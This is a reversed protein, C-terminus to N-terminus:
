LGWTVYDNSKKPQDIDSSNQSTLAWAGCFDHREERNQQGKPCGKRPCRGIVAHISRMKQAFWSNFHCGHSGFTTWNIWWLVCTTLLDHFPSSTAAFIIWFSRSPKAIQRGNSSDSIALSCQSIKLSEIITCRRAFIFKTAKWGACTAAIRGTVIAEGSMWHISRPTRATIAVVLANATNWRLCGHTVLSLMPRGGDDIAYLLDVFDNETALIVKEYKKLTVQPYSETSEINNTLRTSRSKWLWHKLRIKVFTDM